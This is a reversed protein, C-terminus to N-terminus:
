AEASAKAKPKRPFRPKRKPSAEQDPEATAGTTTSVPPAKAAAKKATETKKTSLVELDKLYSLCVATWQPPVLPGFPRAHHSVSASREQFVQLPPEEMLTLMFALTWDGRDVVSQEVAVLLLALIEKTRRFDGAAASDVAHGLVWAVLGMERSSRYGGQRELYQLVSIGGLDGETSPVPKSPHLRRHLQQMMQLFYCSTGGALDNQMKERRQVGKTSSSSTALSTLDGMADGGQAALHAVLATIATSQQTLAAAPSTDEAVPQLVDYLEEGGVGTAHELTPNARVKPPPSLLQLAKAASTQSLGSPNPIGASVSPLKATPGVYREPVHNASGGSSKELQDQRQSLLQMQASLASLQEAIMANSVRKAQATKKSPAPMTSAGNAGIKPAQSVHDEQATYFGSRDDTRQQLWESVMPMLQAADPLSNPHDTSFGVISALSDTVPDYERCFTLVADTVDIVLISAQIGLVVTSLLDETEEILGVEFTSNPGFPTEGSGLQGDALVQTSMIEPPVALLCGGQRFDLLVAYIDVEEAISSAYEPLTLVLLSPDGKAGQCFVELETETVFSHCLFGGAFVQDRFRDFHERSAFRVFGGLGCARLVIFHSSPESVERAYLPDTSTELAVRAWFGASFALHIRQVAKAQDWCVFVAQDECLAPVPGPGAEAQVSQDGIYPPGEEKVLKWLRALPPIAPFAPAAPRVAAAKARAIPDGRTYSCHAPPSRASSEVQAQWEQLRSLKSVFEALESSTFPCSM